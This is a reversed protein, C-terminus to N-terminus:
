GADARRIKFDMVGVAQRPAADWEVFYAFVVDRPPLGKAVLEAKAEAAAEPPFPGLSGLVTGLAGVPQSDGEEAVVKVIREGNAIAGAAQQRTFVGYWGVETKLFPETM